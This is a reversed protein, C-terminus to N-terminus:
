QIANYFCVYVIRAPTHTNKHAHPKDALEYLVMEPQIFEFVSKKMVMWSNLMVMVIFKRSSKKKSKVQARNSDFM